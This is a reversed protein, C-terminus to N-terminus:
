KVRLPSRIRLRSPSHPIRVLNMPIKTSLHLEWVGPQNPQMQLYDPVKVSLQVLRAVFEAVLGEFSPEGFNADHVWLDGASGDQNLVAAQGTGSGNLSFVGPRSDLVPLIVPDFRL